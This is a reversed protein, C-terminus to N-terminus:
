NHAQLWLLRFSCLVAGRSFGLGAARVEDFRILTMFLRVDAETLVNGVLYRQKSLVDECHDLASFLEKFAQLRRVLCTLGMACLSTLPAGCFGAEMKMALAFLILGFIM